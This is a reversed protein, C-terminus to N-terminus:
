AADPIMRILCFPLDEQSDEPSFHVSFVADSGSLTWTLAEEAADGHLLMLQYGEVLSSAVHIQVRGTVDIPAGAYEFLAVMLKEGEYEGMRLCLEGSLSSEQPSFTDVSELVPLGNIAGCVPCLTIAESQTPLLCTYATCPVSAELGCGKRQCHATHTEPTESEWVSYWHGLHNVSVQATQPLAWESGFDATYIREGDAICTPEFAVEYDTPVTEGLKGTQTQLTATCSNYDASWVYEPMVHTLTVTLGDVSSLYYMPTIDVSVAYSLAQGEYYCPLNNLVQQVQNENGSPITLQNTQPMSEGSACSSLLRRWPVSSGNASASVTLSLATRHGYLNSQDDFIVTVSPSITAPIHTLQLTDESETVTYGEPWSVPQITYTIVTSLDNENLYVPLGTYSFATDETFTHLADQTMGSSLAALTSLPISAGGSTVTLEVTVGGRQGDQNDHDEWLLFVARSTLSIPLITLSGPAVSLAYCGTVDEGQANVITLSAVTIESTGVESIEGFFTIAQVSDGAVLGSVTCDSLTATLPTGDYFKKLTPLSISLPAPTITLVGDTVSLTATSDSATFDAATLGMLYQGAKTGSVTADKQCLVTVGEPANHSFGTIEHPLGDYVVSLSEGTIAIELPTEVPEEGSEEAFASASCLLLCLLLCCGALFRRSFCFHHQMM